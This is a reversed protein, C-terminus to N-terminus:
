LLRASPSPLTALCPVQGAPCSESSSLLFLLNLFREKVDFVFVFFLFIPIRSHKRAQCIGLLLGDLIRRMRFRVCVCVCVRLSLSLRM